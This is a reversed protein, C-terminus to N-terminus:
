GFSKQRLILRFCTRGTPLVRTNQGLGDEKNEDEPYKESLVMLLRQRVRSIERTTRLM